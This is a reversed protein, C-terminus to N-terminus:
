ILQNLYEVRATRAEEPTGFMGLHKTEGNRKVAARWRKGYQTLGVNKGRPKNLEQESRTAWRCNGPYYGKDNEKRDITLHDQYGNANAWEMFPIFDRWEDCVTIGRGGYRPYSNHTELTCRCIMNRWIRYLRKGWYGHKAIM